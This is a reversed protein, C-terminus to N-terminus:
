KEVYKIYYCKSKQRFKNKINNEIEKLINREKGDHPVKVYFTGRSTEVVFVSKKKTKSMEEAITMAEEKSNYKINYGYNGACLIDTNYPKGNIFDTFDRPTECQMSLIFERNIWAEDEYDINSNM